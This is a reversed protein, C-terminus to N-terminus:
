WIPLYYYEDKTKASIMKTTIKNPLITLWKFMAGNNMALILRWVGLTAVASIRSGNLHCATICGLPLYHGLSTM